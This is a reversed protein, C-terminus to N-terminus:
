KLYQYALDIIKLKIRVRLKNDNILEVTKKVEDYVGFRKIAKVFVAQFSYNLLYTKKAEIVYQLNDEYHNNTELIKEILGISFSHDMIDLKVFSKENYFRSINPCDYYLPLTHTLLCDSLKESINFPIPMNEIAVSYKYPFLGDDKNEIERFGRGFIDIDNGFHKQLAIVFDYRIKYNRNYTIYSANSAVVSLLKTKKVNEQHYLEDFSKQIFWPNGLHFYEINEGQLKTDATFVKSFQNLFKQNYGGDFEATFLFVNNPSVIARESLNTLGGFVFWFDCEICNPDNVAFIYEQFFENSFYRSMDASSHFYSIKIVKKRIM